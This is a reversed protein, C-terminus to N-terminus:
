MPGFLRGRAAPNILGFYAAILMLAFFLAALALMRVVDRQESFAKNIGHLRGFVYWWAIMGDILALVLYAVLPLQAREGLVFSGIALLTTSKGFFVAYHILVLFMGM